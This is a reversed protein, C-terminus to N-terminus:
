ILNRSVLSANFYPWNFITKIKESDTLLSYQYETQLNIQM